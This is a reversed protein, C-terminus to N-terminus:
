RPARFASGQASTQAGGQTSGASAADHHDSSFQGSAALGGLTGGAVTAAGLGALIALDSDIAFIGASAAKGTAVAPTVAGPASEDPLPAAAAALRPAADPLLTAQEGARVVTPGGDAGEIRLSGSEVRVITQGDPLLKVSAEAAAIPGAAAPMLADSRITGTATALTMRSTVPIRVLAEGIWLTVRLGDIDRTGAQVAGGARLGIMGDSSLNLLAASKPGTMVLTGELLPAGSRPVTQGEDRRGIEDDRIRVDGQASITGLLQRPGATADRGALVGGIVLGAALRVTWRGWGM